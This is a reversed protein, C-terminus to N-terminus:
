ELVAGLAEFISKGKQLTEQYELEPVSDAVIGGGLGISLLGNDYSITRIAINFESHDNFGIYGIAGTYVGRNNPELEEIIQMARIKPAGTISGGPFSAKILDFVDCDNKLKGVIESVLHHVSAFTEVKKLYKVDVSGTECVRNLDNRELDVIMTLEAADKESNLLQKKLLEDQDANEGRRITGKIPKTTVYGDDVKLFLEPSSSLVYQNNGLYMIASYPAPNVKRVRGYIETAPINTAGYFQQTLNVQYIDGERIYYKAKIVSKIYEEYTYNSKLNIVPFSKNITSSLKKNVLFKRNLEELNKNLIEENAPSTRYEWKNIRHNYILCNTYLGFFLEPLNTISKKNSKINEFRRGFDYSFYGVLGGYFKNTSSNHEKTLLFKLYDLPDGEIVKERGNCIEHLKEDRLFVIKLPEFFLYSIRLDSSDFGSSELLILGEKQPFSLFAEFPDLNLEFEISNIM